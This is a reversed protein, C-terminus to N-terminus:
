HQPESAGSPPAPAPPPAASPPGSAPQAPAAKQHLEQARARYDDIANELQVRKIKTFPEATAVRTWVGQKEMRTLVEDNLQYLAVNHDVCTAFERDRAALTQKGKAADTETERLTQITERFKSILEQMKAKTQALEQDTGARESNSHALAAGADRTKRELADQTAKLADRDKQLSALQTKLKDNEAQLTTREAALQQMQQMLQASAGGGTRATQALADTVSAVAVAVAAVVWYSCRGAM